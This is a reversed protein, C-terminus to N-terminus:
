VKSKTSKLETGHPCNAECCCNRTLYKILHDMQASLVRCRINRGERIREILGATELTALHHNLTSGALALRASILGTMMGQEGAVVLLRFLSLRTESGLAALQLARTALEDHFKSTPKLLQVSM